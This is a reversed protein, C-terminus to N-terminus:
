SNTHVKPHPPVVESCFPASPQFYDMAASSEKRGLECVNSSASPHELEVDYFDGDDDPAVSSITSEIHLPPLNYASSKSDAAHMTSSPSLRATTESNQASLATETSPQRWLPVVAPNSSSSLGANRPPRPLDGLEIPVFLPHPVLVGGKEEDCTEIKSDSESSQSNSSLVTRAQHLNRLRRWRRISLGVTLLFAIFAVIGLPIAVLAMTAKTPKNSALLQPTGTLANNNM